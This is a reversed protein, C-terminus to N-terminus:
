WGTCSEYARLEFGIFLWRQISCARNRIIAGLFVEPRQVATWDASLWDRQREQRQDLQWQGSKSLAGAFHRNSSGSIVSRNLDDASRNCWDSSPNGAGM